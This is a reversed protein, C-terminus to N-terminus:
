KFFLFVVQIKVTSYSGAMNLIRQIDPCNACLKSKQYRGDKFNGVNRDFLEYDLGTM